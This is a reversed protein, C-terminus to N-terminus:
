LTSEKRTQLILLTNIQARFTNGSPNACNTPDELVQLWVEWVEEFPSLLRKYFTTGSPLACGAFIVTTQLMTYCPTSCQGSRLLRMMKIKIWLFGHYHNINVRTIHNFYYDKEEYNNMARLPQGWYLFMNLSSIVDWSTPVVGTKTQGM